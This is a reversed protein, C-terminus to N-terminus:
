LLAMPGDHVTADERRDIIDLERWKGSRECKRAKMSNIRQTDLGDTM